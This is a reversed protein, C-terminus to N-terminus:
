GLRVWGLRALESVRGEGQYWVVGRISLPLMPEVMANWLQSNGCKGTKCKPKPDPDPKYGCKGLADPSSWCGDETGGWSSLVLGIPAKQEQPLGKYLERGFFYCVAAFDGIAPKRTVANITSPKTWNLFVSDFEQLPTSSCASRDVQFLRIMPYNAADDCEQESSNAWNMQRVM